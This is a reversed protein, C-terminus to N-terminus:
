ENVKELIDNCKELVDNVKNTLDAIQEAGEVTGFGLIGDGECAKCSINTGESGLPVEGTGNCNSCTIKIQFPTAAM